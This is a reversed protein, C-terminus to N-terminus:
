AVRRAPTFNPTKGVLIRRTRYVAIVGMLNLEARQDSTFTDQQIMPHALLSRVVQLEAHVGWLPWTWRTNTSRNGSFGLTHLSEEEPTSVFVPIAEIALRNAGLMGGARKRNPDGSPQNWQYAHRRDESPDFHLSQKDLADAYDWPAFISRRLDHLGTRTIVERLNILFYDRRATQLQNTASPPVFDSALSSIWEASLSDDVRSQQFCDVFVRRRDEGDEATLSELLRCPHKSIDRELNDRLHALIQEEDLSRNESHTLLPVLTGGSPVWSMRFGRGLSRLAGVAALFGLPNTGDLGPLPLGKNTASSLSRM